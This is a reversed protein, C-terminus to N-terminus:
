SWGKGSTWIQARQEKEMRQSKGTRPDQALSFAISLGRNWDMASWVALREQLYNLSEAMTRTGKNVNLDDKMWRKPTLSM